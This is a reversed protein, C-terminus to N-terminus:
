TWSREHGPGAPAAPSLASRLQALGRATQSKVNGESCGLADASDAVSLDLVFRLVVAARMRPSLQALARFVAADTDIPEPDRVAVEPVDARAAEHRVHRRRRDDLHVNVLVRYAYADCTETRIRPWSLYMRLLVDQVLDEARHPDGSSLLMAARVLGGRRGTVFERFEDEHRPAGVATM